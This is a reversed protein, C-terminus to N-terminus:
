NEFRNRTLLILSILKRPYTHKSWLGALRDTMMIWRSYTVWMINLVNSTPQNTVNSLYTTCPRDQTLQLIVYNAGISIIISKTDIEYLKIHVHSHAPTYKLLEVTHWIVIEIPWNSHYGYPTSLSFLKPTSINYSPQLPTCVHTCTSHVDRNVILTYVTPSCRAHTPNSLTHASTLTNIINLLQPWWTHTHFHLQTNSVVLHPTGM